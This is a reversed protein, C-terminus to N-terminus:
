QFLHKRKNHPLPPVVKDTGNNQHVISKKGEAGHADISLNQADKRVPYQIASGMKSVANRNTVKHVSKSVNSSDKRVVYQVANGVKHLTNSDHPMNAANVAVAFVAAALTLSLVYPSKKIIM